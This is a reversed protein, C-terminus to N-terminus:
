HRHRGLSRKIRRALGAFNRLGPTRDIFGLQDIDTRSPRQIGLVPTALWTELEPHDKRLWSYAGDVHMPGGAPDGSPRESMTKLYPVATAIADGNLAIFHTTRVSDSPNARSLLPTDAPGHYQEYGGYFISWRKEKLATLTRELRAKADRTFDLDDELILINSAGATLADILIDQHSTFCGRAGISPFTGANEPRCADHFAVRVGDITLGLRALEGTMEARRDARHRLNIIRIREFTELMAQGSATPM